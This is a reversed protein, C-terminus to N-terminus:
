AAHGADLREGLDRYVQVAQGHLTRAEKLDGALLRASALAGLCRALTKTPGSPRVLTLAKRLLREGDDVDDPRLRVTGARCLMRGEAFGDNLKSFLGAARMADDYDAPDDHGRVEGAQWSLLRAAAAARTTRKVAGLARM